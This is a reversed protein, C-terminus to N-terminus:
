GVSFDVNLISHYEHWDFGNLHAWRRELHQRGLEMCYLRLSGVNSAMTCYLNPVRLNTEDHIWEATVSPALTIEVAVM